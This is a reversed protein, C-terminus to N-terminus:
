IIISSISSINFIHFEKEAQKVLSEKLHLFKVFVNTKLMFIKLCCKDQFTKRLFTKMFIIQRAFIIKFGIQRFFHRFLKTKFTNQTINILRVFSQRLHNAKLDM